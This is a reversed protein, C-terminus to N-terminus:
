GLFRPISQIHRLNVGANSTSTLYMSRTWKRCLTVDRLLPSPESRQVHNANIKLSLHAERRSVCVAVDRVARV